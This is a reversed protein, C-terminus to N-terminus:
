FEIFLFTPRDLDVYIPSVPAIHSMKKKVSGNIYFYFNHFFNLYLLVGPM